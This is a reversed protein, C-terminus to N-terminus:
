LIGHALLALREIAAHAAHVQEDSLFLLSVGTLAAFIFGIQAIVGARFFAAHAEIDAEQDLLGDQRFREPYLVAVHARRVRARQGLPGSTRRAVEAQLASWSAFGYARALAFQADALRAGPVKAKMDALRAKAQKRLHDPHPLSPLMPKGPNGTM